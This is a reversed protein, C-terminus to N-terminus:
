RKSGTPPRPPLFIIEVFKGLALVEEHKPHLGTEPRFRIGEDDAVFISALDEDEKILRRFAKYTLATYRPLVDPAPPSPAFLWSRLARGAHIADELRHSWVPVGAAELDAQTPRLAYGSMLMLGELKERVRDTMTMTAM